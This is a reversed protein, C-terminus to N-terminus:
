RITSSCPGSLSMGPEERRISEDTRQGPARGFKARFCRLPAQRPNGSCAPEMHLAAAQEPFDLRSYLRSLTVLRDTLEAIDPGLRDVPVFAEEEADALIEM